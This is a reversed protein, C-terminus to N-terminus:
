APRHRTKQWKKRFVMYIIFIILHPLLLPLVAGLSLLSSLPRSIADPPSERVSINTTYVLLLLFSVILPLFFMVAAQKRDNLIKRGVWQWSAIFILWHGLWIMVSVWNNHEM